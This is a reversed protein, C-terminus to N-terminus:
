LLSKNTFPVPTQLMFPQSGCDVVCVEDMYQQKAALDRQQTQLQVCVLFCGPECIHLKYLLVLLSLLTLRGHTHLNPMRQDSCLMGEGM